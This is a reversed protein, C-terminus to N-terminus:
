PIQVDKFVAEVSRSIYEKAEKTPVLKLGGEPTVVYDKLADKGVIKELQAPTRLKKPSWIEDGYADTFADVVADEDRYARNKKSKILTYNPIDEGRSALTFAYGQLNDLFGKLVELAPLAKGINEATLETITPFSHEIHPVVAKIPELISANLAPCPLQAKCFKCWYGAHFDPNKVRTLAIAKKLDVMFQELREPTTEWIKIFDGSKARPQIIGIVVHKVFMKADLYPRLAYYMCQKNETPDVIIGRGGKLDFVYLTDSVVFSCDVTGRAKADVEPITFQTEVQLAKLTVNHTNLIELITNRYMRVAFAFDDTVTFEIIDGYNDKVEVMEGICDYPDIDKQLCKAALEHIATGELAAPISPEVIDVKAQAQVSGPCNFFREASSPSINSHGM